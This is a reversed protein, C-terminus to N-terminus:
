GNNLEALVQRAHDAIPSAPNLSIIKELETKAKESSNLKRYTLALHYRYSQNNPFAKVAGEFLSEAVSYGGNNYYAWGLTDATNPINPLGKRATQALTLAVTPSGGHELLLYALNNSVVPNEPAIVLVNEYTAQAQKWNGTQEYLEGLSILLRMDRPAVNIGRKYLAVAQDTQGSQATLQALLFIAPVYNGDLELVRNLSAMAAQPQKSRVQLEAQM